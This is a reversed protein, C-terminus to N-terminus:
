PLGNDVFGNELDYGISLELLETGGTRSPTYRKEHRDCTIIVQGSRSLAGKIEVKMQLIDAIIAEKQSIVEQLGEQCGDRLEKLKVMRLLQKMLGKIESCHRALILEVRKKAKEVSMEGTLIMATLQKIAHLVQKREPPCTRVAIKLKQGMVAASDKLSAAYADAQRKLDEEQRDVEKLQTFLDEGLYIRLVNRVMLGEATISRAYIEAQGCMIRAGSPLFRVEPATLRCDAVERKVLISTQATVRANRAAGIEIHKGSRISSRVFSAMIPGSVDVTEGEVAGKVELLGDIVVAFNGKIDGQVVVDAACRLENGAGSLNGTSFDVDKVVIHNQVSLKIIDSARPEKGKFDYVIIGPKESFFDKYHRKTEDDYGQTVSLGEGIEIPHPAGPEPAIKWGHVDTGDLGQTPEYVRVLCEGARAQPFKNIERFDISGDPLIRGPKMAFDFFVEISGDLGDVPPEGKILLTSIEPATNILVTRPRLHKEKGPALFTLEEVYGSLLSQKVEPPIKIYYESLIEELAKTLVEPPVRTVPPLDMAVKMIGPGIHVEDITDKIWSVVDEKPSDPTLEVAKNETTDFM